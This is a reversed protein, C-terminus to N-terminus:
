IAPHLTKVRGELLEPVGTIESVPTSEVDAETLLRHTGGTALLRYGREALSRAFPVADTKDAVSILAHPRGTKM